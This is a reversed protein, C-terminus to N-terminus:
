MGVGSGMVVPLHIVSFISRLIAGLVREVAKDPGESRDQPKCGRDQRM